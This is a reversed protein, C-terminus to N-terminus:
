AAKMWIVLAFRAEGTVPLSRHPTFRDLFLVSGAPCAPHV